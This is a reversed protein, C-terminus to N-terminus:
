QPLPSAVGKVHWNMGLILDDALVVGDEVAVEGAQNVLPGTFVKMEGSHITAEIEKIRAMTEPSIDKNWDEVVVVDDEMGLWTYEGKFTGNMHAEVASLFLPAWDTKIVGLYYEPAYTKMSSNLNLVYVGKREAVSVVSPTDQAMSFIVDNGAAILAEASSQEKAPDFWTNVWIVNVKIDPKVQQAGLTFANITSVFEPIAFAAVVGLSDSKSVDAAAMGLLYAGEFYRATFPSMNDASKFGSAHLISMDPYQKAIKLGANMYGFSGLVAFKNGDAAIQSIVRDGDPGEPINEILTIDVADGYKAKVADMGEVLAHTWGVDGVPSPAVMGIKLPEAMAAGAGLLVSLAGAVLRRKWDTMM